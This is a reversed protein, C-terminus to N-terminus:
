RPLSPWNKFAVLLSVVVMTWALALVALEPRTPKRIPM